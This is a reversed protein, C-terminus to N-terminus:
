AQTLTRRSRVECWDDNAQHYASVVATCDLKGDKASSMVVRAANGKTVTECTMQGHSSRCREAASNILQMVVGFLLSKLSMPLVGRAKNPSEIRLSQSM